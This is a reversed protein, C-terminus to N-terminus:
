PREVEVIEARIELSPSDIGITIVRGRTKVEFVSLVAATDLRVEATGKLSL